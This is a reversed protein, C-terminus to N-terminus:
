AKVASRLFTDPLHVGSKELNALNYFIVLRNNVREFAIAGGNAFLKRSNCVVLKKEDLYFKTQAPTFAWAINAKADVSIEQKKLQIVMDLEKCAVRGESGASAALILLLRAAEELPVGDAALPLSVVSMLASAVLTRSVLHHFARSRPM